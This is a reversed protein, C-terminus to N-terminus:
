CFSKDFSLYSIRQIWETNSSILNQHLMDYLNTYFIKKSSRILEPISLSHLRHLPM